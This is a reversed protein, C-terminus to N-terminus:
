KVSRAPTSIKGGSFRVYTWVKLGAPTEQEPGRSGTEGGMRGGGGMRGRGGGGMGRGGMGEGGRGGMGGSHRGSSPGRESKQVEIGVGVKDGPAAGLAVPYESTSGFPIKLEYVFLGGTTSAAIELGNADSIKLRRFSDSGSGFVEFSSADGEAPEESPQGNDMNPSPPRERQRMGLPYKIGLAKQDGGKPDFWVTLGGSAIQHRFTEDETVFCVYLVNEGTLFGEEARGDSIISLAGVWDDSKGDVTIEREAPRSDTIYAKTASCAGMGLAILCFLFPRSPNRMPLEGKKHNFEGGV